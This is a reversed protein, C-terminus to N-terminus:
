SNIMVNDSDEHLRVTLHTIEFLPGCSSTPDAKHATLAYGLELGAQAIYGPSLM